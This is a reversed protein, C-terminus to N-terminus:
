STSIMVKRLVFISGQNGRGIRLDDDLYTVELWGSQRDRNIQFDIGQWVPLKQEVQLKQIFSQPTKYALVRQLGFVGRNFAITVRKQSVAEFQASVAVLGELFPLGIVEAINYIRQEALYICQYIQGLRYTPIRDIGLLDRSTTYLLRWAGELQATAALPNPTPTRDELRAVLIQIAQQDAPSALLGRNTSAIAELLETKGLM